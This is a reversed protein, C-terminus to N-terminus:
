RNPGVSVNDSGIRRQRAQATDVEWQARVGVTEYHTRARRVKELSDLSRRQKVIFYNESRAVPRGRRPGIATLRHKSWRVLTGSPVSWMPTPLSHLGSELEPQGNLVFSPRFLPEIENQLAM